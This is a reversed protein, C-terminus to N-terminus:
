NAKSGHGPGFRCYRQRQRHKIESSFNNPPLIHYTWLFNGTRVILPHVDSSKDYDPVYSFELKVLCKSLTSKMTLTSKGLPSPYMSNLIRKFFLFCYLSSLVIKSIFLEQQLLVGRLPRRTTGAPWSVLFRWSTACPRQGSTVWGPRSSRWTGRRRQPGAWGRLCHAPSSVSTKSGWATCSPVEEDLTSILNKELLRFDM